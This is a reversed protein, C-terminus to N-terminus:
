EREISNSHRRKKEKLEAIDSEAYLSIDIEIGSFFDM